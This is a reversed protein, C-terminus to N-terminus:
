IAKKLFSIPDYFYKALDSDNRCVLTYSSYFRTPHKADPASKQPPYKLVEFHFHDFQWGYKNLENRNMFRAIPMQPNVTDGPKVHIEAIHEYVTWFRPGNLEHVIIIQAYAGDNRTSIVTGDAIAFIPENTYNAGPRVIDIGTHIHAPVDPRAKRAIGFKGISTLKLSEASKRDGSNVPLYISPKPALFLLAILLAAYQM